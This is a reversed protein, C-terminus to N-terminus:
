SNILNLYIDLLFKQHDFVVHLKQWLVQEYDQWEKHPHALPHAQNLLPLLIAQFLSLNLHSLYLKM